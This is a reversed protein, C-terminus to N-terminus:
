HQNSYPRIEYVCEPVFYGISREYADQRQNRAIEREAAVQNKAIAFFRGNLWIEVKKTKM